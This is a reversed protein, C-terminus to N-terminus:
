ACAAYCTLFHVLKILHPLMTCTSFSVFPRCSGASRHSDHNVTQAWQRCFALEGSANSNAADQCWDRLDAPVPLVNGQLM